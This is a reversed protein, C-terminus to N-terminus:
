IIRKLIRGLLLTINENLQCSAVPVAYKVDIISDLFLNILTEEREVRDLEKLQDSYFICDNINKSAEERPRLRLAWLKTRLRRVIEGSITPGEHWALLAQWAGHGDATAAFKQVLHAAGGGNAASQLLYFIRQNGEENCVTRQFEAKLYQSYGGVGLMRCIFLQSPSSKSIGEDQVV